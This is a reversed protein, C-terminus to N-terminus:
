QDETRGVPNESRSTYKFSISLFLDTPSPCAHGSSIKIMVASVLLFAALVAVMGVFSSTMFVTLTNRTEVSVTGTFSNNVLGKSSHKRSPTPLGTSGRPNVCITWHPTM